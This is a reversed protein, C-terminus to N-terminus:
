SRPAQPGRPILRHPRRRALRIDRGPARGSARATSSTGCSSRVVLTAPVVDHSPPAPETAITRDLLRRLAREGLQFADVHVTTLAPNLYRAIPTDDFGVIAIDDPVRVAADNLAGVLGVAMSDNAAFVADARPKGALLAAAAEYGSPETFDGRLELSSERPLGADRLAARYGELRQRAEVNARPGTVTAIRSRGLGILHKVAAYAGDFNAVSITDCDPPEEGPNLLVVPLDGACAQITGRGEIDPAMLVLGDVRGRISRLAAILGETDSHFSSVLLHFGAKRACLDIGHIVESFFEGHLEPLLVGFAHARNTILSRAAGNPWYNLRSAVQRVRERTDESVAPSDNFVRSVTATSVGAERAVDKITTM